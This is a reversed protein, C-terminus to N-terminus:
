LPDDFEFDQIKGVKLAKFDPHAPNLVFNYEMPIVTSPVKLVPSVQADFWDDGIQKTSQPTPIAKWDAPLDKEKLPAIMAEPIDTWVCKFGQMMHIKVM